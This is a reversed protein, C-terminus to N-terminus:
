NLVFRIPAAVWIRVPQHNQIAASFKWEHGCQVAASDLLPYGSTKAVSVRMVSGDKDILMNIFVTGQQGLVKATEPYTPPVASLVRAPVEVAIFQGIQPIIENGSQIRVASTDNVNITNPLVNQGTISGQDPMTQNVAIADPVPKPVGIIPGDPKAIPDVTTGNNAPDLPPPTFKTIDIIQIHNDPILVTNRDQLWQRYKIWGFVATIGILLCLNAVYYSKKLTRIYARNIPSRKGVNPLSAYSFHPNM